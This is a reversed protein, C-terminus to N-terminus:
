REKKQESSHENEETKKNNDPEKDFLDIVPLVVNNLFRSAAMNRYAKFLDFLM